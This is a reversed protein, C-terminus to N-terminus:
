DIKRFLTTPPEILQREDLPEHARLWSREEADLGLFDAVRSCSFPLFPEGLIALSKAIRLCVAITTECGAPNDKRQKWPAQHDFFRNGKRALEMVLGMANKFRFADLERGVMEPLQEVFALVQSIEPSSTAIQPVRSGLYKHSFILTRHVFNGLTGVLEDNNRRILDDMNFATRQNEPAILTLYYRLPDPDYDKLYEGIWVATGRSKSMKEEEKGPFQINIFANAVVNTPLQFSGEAMLMAPWMLSHFVINDEGIFHYIPVHKNKWWDAYTERELGQAEAWDATFTVYGIPADFWVYLVKGVSDPDAHLPVPVGWTLDRTVPRPKLGQKLMGLAFNRVTARWDQRSSLWETLKTALRDQRFYWHVTQRVEPTTGTITSEPSGLELPDQDKGCNECQDGLADGGCFPCTGRVYRDPLFMNAHPDFLQNSQRKELFGSKNVALFFQQSFQKHRPSSTRGYIDPKVGLGEFDRVQNDHYHQVVQDPTSGESRATLLAPVGHDDSGCVFLTDRGRSRCYRAYTDAPLYSGGIHGVHLNGNAYPLAATILVRRAFAM